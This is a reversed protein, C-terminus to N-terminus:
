SRTARAILVGVGVAILLAPIPNRKIMETFDNAMGSMGEQQLYRGGTELGDAVRSAAGGIVGSHPTHERISEAATELGSGVRGVLNDATRGASAGAERAKDAVSSATDRAQEALHSATNGVTSAAQSAAEGVRQAAGTVADKAGQTGTAM